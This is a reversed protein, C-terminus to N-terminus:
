RRYALARCQVLCRPESHPGTAVHASATTVGLGYRFVMSLHDSDVGRGSCTGM